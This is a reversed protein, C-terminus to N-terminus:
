LNEPIPDDVLPQLPESFLREFCDEFTEERGNRRGITTQALGNDLVAKRMRERRTSTDTIGAFIETADLVGHQNMRKIFWMERDLQDFLGSNLKCVAPSSARRKM